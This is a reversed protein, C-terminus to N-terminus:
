CKFQPGKIKGCLFDELRARFAPDIELGSLINKNLSSPIVFWTGHGHGVPNGASDWFWRIGLYPKNEGDTEWDFAVIVWREELNKFVVAYPGSLSAKPSDIKLIM